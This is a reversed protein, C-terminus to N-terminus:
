AQRAGRGKNLLAQVKAQRAADPAAAAQRPAAARAPPVEDLAPEDQDIDSEDEYATENYGASDTSGADYKEDDAPASVDITNSKDLEVKYAYMPNNKTPVMGTFTVRTMVGPTVSKMKTDLNTKGWIGVNGKATQFVHLAAFGTKSKPSAVQRSGVYYGEVKTPNAKGTKKDVGGLAYSTDCDLDALTEFAM